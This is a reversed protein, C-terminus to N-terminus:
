MLIRKGIETGNLYARRQPDGEEAAVKRSMKRKNMRYQEMIKRYIYDKM